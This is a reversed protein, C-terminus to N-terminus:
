RNAYIYLIQHGIIGFSVTRAWIASSYTYIYIPSELTWINTCNVDDILSIPVDPSQLAWYIYLEGILPRSYDTEPM